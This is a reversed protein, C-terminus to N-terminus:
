KLDRKTQKSKNIKSKAYLQRSTGVYDDSPPKLNEKVRKARVKKWLEPNLKECVKDYYRPPRTPRGEIIIEDKSYVDSLNKKIWNEGIGHRLSQGQFGPTRQRIEGATEDIWQVREENM